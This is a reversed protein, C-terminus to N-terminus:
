TIHDYTIRCLPNRERSLSVISVIARHLRENRGTLQTGRDNDASRRM